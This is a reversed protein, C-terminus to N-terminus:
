IIQDIKANRYESEDLLPLFETPFYKYNMNITPPVGGTPVFSGDELLYETKGTHYNYYKDVIKSRHRHKSIKEYILKLENDLNVSNYSMSMKCREYLSVVECFFCLAEVFDTSLSNINILKGWKHVIDVNYRTITEVKNGSLSNTTKLITNTCRKLIGERNNIVFEGFTETNHNILNM